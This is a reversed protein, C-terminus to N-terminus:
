AGFLLRDKSRLLRTRKRTQGSTVSSSPMRRVVPAAQRSPRPAKYVQQTQNLFAKLGQQEVGGLWIRVTERNRGLRRSIACQSLGSQHLEWALVIETQKQMGM